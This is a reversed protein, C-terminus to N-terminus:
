VLERIFSLDLSSGSMVIVHLPSRVVKESQQLLSLQIDPLAISTRDHGEKEVTQNIGAFFFVIDSSRALQIAAAFTSEDNDIIQCGLAYQIDISHGEFFFIM